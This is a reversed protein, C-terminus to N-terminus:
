CAQTHLMGTGAKNGSEELSKWRDNVNVELFCSQRPEGRFWYEDEVPLLTEIQSWDIATPVRKVVSAFIDMEFVAWWCRRAEEKQCWLEPPESEINSGCSDVLHLNMEYALRVSVGLSRWARGHVGKTLLYHTSLVYAQLVVLPPPEDGLEHMIEIITKRALHYFHEPGPHPVQSDPGDVHAAFALM